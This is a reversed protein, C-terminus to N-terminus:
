AWVVKRAILRDIMEKTFACAELAERTHAGLAPGASRVAAAWGQVTPVVGPMELSPGEVDPLQVISGRARLHEEGSIMGADHIAGLVVGHKAAAELAESHTREGIWQDMIAYIESMAKRSEELTPFRPDDRLAPGGIMELVRKATADNAASVTVYKGDKTLLMKSIAFNMPFENGNRLVPGGLATAIPMQWEIMRFVAQHLPVMVDASAGGATGVRRLEAIARLAALAGSLYEALPFEPQVPTANPHGTLAMMGTIAATLDSRRSWPWLEPRDAGTAIVDVLLPRRELSAIRRLWPHAARELPPVDTLVVDAHALLREIVADAGKADADIAVSKKNRASVQWWEQPQRSRMLSGEPPMECVYVTANFDALLSGAFSAGPTSCLELAVLGSLAEGAPINRSKGSASAAAVM